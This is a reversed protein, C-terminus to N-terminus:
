GALEQIVQLYANDNNGGVLVIVPQPTLIPQSTNINNSPQSSSVSITSQSTGKTTVNQHGMTNNERDSSNSRLWHNNVPQWNATTFSFTTSPNSRYNSTNFTVKRPIRSPTGGRELENTNNFFSMKQLTKDDDNIYKFLINQEYDPAYTDNKEENYQRMAVSLTIGPSSENSGQFSAIITDNQDREM